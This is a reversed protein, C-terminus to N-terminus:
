ATSTVIMAISANANLITSRGSRVAAARRPTLRSVCRLRLVSETATVITTPPAQATIPLTTAPAPKTALWNMPLAVGSVTALARM